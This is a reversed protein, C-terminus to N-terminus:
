KAKKVSTCHIEYCPFLWCLNEEYFEKAFPTSNVLFGIIKKMGHRVYHPRFSKFILVVDQVELDDIM